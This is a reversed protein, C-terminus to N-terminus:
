KFMCKSKVPIVEYWPEEDLFVVEAANLIRTGNNGIAVFHYTFSTWDQEEWSGGETYYTKDQYNFKFVEGEFPCSLGPDLRSGILTGTVTFHDWNGKNFHKRIHFTLEGELAGVLNGDCNVPTWFYFTRTTVETKKDASKLQVDDNVVPLLDDSKSCGLLLITAGLFIFLLKKM